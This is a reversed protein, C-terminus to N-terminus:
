VKNFKRFLRNPSGTKETVRTDENPARYIGIIEWKFKPDRGKVEVATMEFDKDVWLEVCAIYNKVCIFV